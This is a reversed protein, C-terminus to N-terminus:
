YGRRLYFIYFWFPFSTIFMFVLIVGIIHRAILSRNLWGQMQCSLVQTVVGGAIIAFVIFLFALKSINKSVELYVM